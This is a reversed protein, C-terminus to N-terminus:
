SLSQVPGCSKGLLWGELMRLTPTQHAVTVPILPVRSASKVTPGTAAASSSTQAAPSLTLTTAHLFPVAQPGQSSCSSSSLCIQHPQPCAHRLPVSHRGLVLLSTLFLQVAGEPGRPSQRTNNATRWSAQSEKLIQSYYLSGPFPYGPILQKPTWASSTETRCM